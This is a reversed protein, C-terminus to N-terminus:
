WKLSSHSFESIWGALHGANILDNIWNIAHVISNIKITDFSYWRFADVVYKLHPNLCMTYHKMSRITDVQHTWKEALLHAIKFDGCELPNITFHSRFWYFRSLIWEFKGYQWSFAFNFYEGMSHIDISAILLLYLGLCLDAFALHSILFKPVTVDNRFSLIM